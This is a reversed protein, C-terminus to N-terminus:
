RVTGDDGGKKCAAGIWRGHMDVHVKGDTQAMDMSATYSEASTADFSAHMKSPEPATCVEEFEFHRATQSIVNRTCNKRQTEKATLEGRALDQPTVCTRSIHTNVKGNRASMMAEIKARQAPPMQALTDKPMMMGATVRNITVEWAGTKINLTEALATLPLAIVFLTAFITKM